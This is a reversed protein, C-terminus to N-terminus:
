DENRVGRLEEELEKIRDEAEILNDRVDSLEQEVDELECQLRHIENERNIADDIDSKMYNWERQIAEVADNMDDINDELSM